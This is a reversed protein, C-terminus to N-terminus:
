LIFVSPHKLFSIRTAHIISAADVPVCVGRSSAFASEVHRILAEIAEGAGAKCAGPPRAFASGGGVGRDDWAPLSCPRSRTVRAHQLRTHKGRTRSPCPGDIAGSSPPRAAPPLRRPEGLPIDFQGNVVQLLRTVMGATGRTRFDVPLLATQAACSVARMTDKGADPEGHLLKAHKCQM